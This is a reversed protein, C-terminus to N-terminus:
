CLNCAVLWFSPPGDAEEGARQGSPWLETRDSAAGDIVSRGGDERRGFKEVTVLERSVKEAQVKEMSVVPHAHVPNVSDELGHPKAENKSSPHGCKM